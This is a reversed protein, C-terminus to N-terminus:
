NGNRKNRILFRKYTVKLYGTSNDATYYVGEPKKSYKITASTNAKSGNSKSGDENVQIPNIYKKTPIAEFEDRGSAM